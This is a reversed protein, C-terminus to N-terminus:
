LTYKGSDNVIKLVARGNVFALPKEMECIHEKLDDLTAYEINVCTFGKM